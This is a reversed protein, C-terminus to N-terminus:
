SPCCRRIRRPLLIDGRRATRLAAVATSLHFTAYDLARAILHDRGFRSTWIRLIEVNRITERSPLGPNGASGQYLLRSTIVTVQWGKEALGFAIDTLMQSTASHDPYFFRNIFIIKPM